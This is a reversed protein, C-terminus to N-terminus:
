DLNVIYLVVKGHITINDNINYTQEKHVANTSNPKFVLTNDYRYYHKVSYEYDNSYVVIDDNNLRDITTPEVVILSKDQMINNMSDGSVKTVFLDNRGAYRGMIEDPIPIKSAQTIADVTLPLGASITTPLYTYHHTKKENNGIPPFLDDISVGFIKALKFLLDQGPEREGSEYRSVSQKTTELRVALQEQNMGM